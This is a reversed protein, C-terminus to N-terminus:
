CPKAGLVSSPYELLYAPLDLLIRASNSPSFSALIGAGKVLWACKQALAVVCVDNHTHTHTHTYVPEANPWILRLIKVGFAAIKTHNGRLLNVQTEIKNL